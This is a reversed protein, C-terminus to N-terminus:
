NILKKLKDAEAQLVKEFEQMDITIEEGNKIQKKIQKQMEKPLMELNISGDSNLLSQEQSAEEYFNRSVKENLMKKWERRMEKIDLPIHKDYKSIEFSYLTQQYYEEGPNLIATPFNPNNPTDPYKQAEFCIGSRAPFTAGQAGAFGNLWNGTYLQVGPETTHVSLIRGTKEHECIVAFSIRDLGAINKIVYCHDYGSGYILQQFKDNIRKGIQTSKLFDMPTGAVSAPKGTPISHEDIPIYEDANITVIHDEISPSPNSIGALNFFAHNTLNVITPSDTTAVYEISLVDQGRKTVLTYGVTVTLNGPFGEEGDPSVYELWLDNESSSVVDWVQKHFGNPGGHLSNPGNNTALQYEKGNLTFKGAKIRNAYRGIVTNLFPEPSDIVSDINDHGLVVNDYKGNKDPVMIALIAGGYNTIAVESGSESKLIFLDTEKGNITRQFNKRDLNSLNKKTSM